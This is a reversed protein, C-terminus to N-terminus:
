KIKKAPSGVYTGSEVCDKVVVAGAGIITNPVISKGQIIQTGTGLESCEGVRVNGSINVSPYVTVFNELIDDHGVTCDLNLIVHNGIKIDVTIITGACIITGEGIEAKESILVSPDIVTAFKVSSEKFKEIIFKRVKAAGVACVAYVEGLTKLYDCGGWVPYDGEDTGWLNENDDIFGKLNWTPEVNNIREVLWAVERGFGGAGIIYLDKM